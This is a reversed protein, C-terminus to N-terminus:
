SPSPEAERASLYWKPQASPLVATPFAAHLSNQGPVGQYVKNQSLWGDDHYRFAARALGAGFNGSSKVSM